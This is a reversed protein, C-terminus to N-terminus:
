GTLPRERIYNILVVVECFNVTNCKYDGFYKTYNHTLIHCASSTVSRCYPAKEEFTIWRSYYQKRKRQKKKKVQSNEQINFNKSGLYHSLLTEFIAKYNINKSTCHTTIQSVFAM